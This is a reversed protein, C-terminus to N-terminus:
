FEGGSHEIRGNINCCLTSRLHHPDVMQWAHSEWEKRSLSGRANASDYNSAQPTEQLTSIETFESFNRIVLACLHIAYWTMLACLIKGAVKGLVLDMIEFVSKGPYLKLIRAYILMFPCAILAGVILTIWSDQGTQTNVGLIVSSGFEFLLMLSVAQILSIPKQGVAIGRKKSIM